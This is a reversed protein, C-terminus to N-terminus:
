LVACMCDMIGYFTNSLLSHNDLGTQKQQEYQTISYLIIIKLVIFAAKIYNFLMIIAM